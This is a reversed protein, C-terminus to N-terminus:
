KAWMGRKNIRAENELDMFRKKYEFNLGRSLTSFGAKISSGNIFVSYYKGHPEHDYWEERSIDATVPLKTDLFVYLHPVGLESVRRGQDHTKDKIIRVKRGVVSRDLFNKSEEIFQMYRETSIKLQKANAENQSAEGSQPVDIGLLRIMKKGELELTAGDVARMVQYTEGAIASINIVILLILSLFLTSLRKM